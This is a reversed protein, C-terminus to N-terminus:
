YTAPPTGLWSAANRSSPMDSISWYCRFRRTTWATFVWPFWNLRALARFTRPEKFLGVRAHEPLDALVTLEAEAPAQGKAHLARHPPKGKARARQLERLQEAYGELKAAEGVPVIEKWDRSPEM